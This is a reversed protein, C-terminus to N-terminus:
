ETVGLRAPLDRAPLMVCPMDAEIDAVLRGAIAYTPARHRRGPARQGCTCGCCLAHHVLSVLGCERGSTQSIEARRRYLSVVPCINYTPLTRKYAGYVAYTICANVLLLVVGFPWPIWPGSRSFLSRCMGTTRLM